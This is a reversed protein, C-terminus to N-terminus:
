TYMYTDPKCSAPGGHELILNQEDSLRHRGLEVVSSELSRQPARVNEESGLDLSISNGLVIASDVAM